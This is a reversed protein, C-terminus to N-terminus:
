CPCEGLSILTKATRETSIQPGMGHISYTWNAANNSRKNELTGCTFIGTPFEQLMLMFDPTDTQEYDHM